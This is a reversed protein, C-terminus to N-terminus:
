AEVDLVDDFLHGEAGGAPDFVGGSVKVIGKEDDAAVRQGIEVQLGRDFVM